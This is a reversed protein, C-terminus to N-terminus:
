SLPGLRHQDCFSRNKINLLTFYCVWYILSVVLASRVLAADGQAETVGGPDRNALRM